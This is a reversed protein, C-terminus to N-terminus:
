SWLINIKLHCAWRASRGEGKACTSALRKWLALAVSHRCCDSGYIEVIKLPLGEAVVAAHIAKVLSSKGMGRAGWLLANNAPLGQAFQRTNALLTDRSRRIGVLLDLDIRNVKHVPELRDPEVHWLFADALTLDPAPVPPPAMRELAAAIRKLTDSKSM